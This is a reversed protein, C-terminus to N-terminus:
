ILGAIDIPLGKRVLKVLRFTRDLLDGRNIPSDIISLAIDIADPGSIRIVAIGSGKSQPLPTGLAYITDNSTIGM